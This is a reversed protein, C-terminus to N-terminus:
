EVAEKSECPIAEAQETRFDAGEQASKEKVRKMFVIILM